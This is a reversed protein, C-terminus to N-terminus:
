SKANSLINKSPHGLRRHLLDYDALYITNFISAKVQVDTVSADLWYVNQSFSILKCTLMPRTKDYLSIHRADGKISLSDNLFQGMSILCTSIKPIYHVPYLRTQVLKNNVKHELLVAGKGKVHIIDLVTRVPMWDAPKATEYEIFDNFDHMFHLSAGSDLLWLTGMKSASKGKCCNCQAFSQGHECDLNNVTLLARLDMAAVRCNGDWLWRRVSPRQLLAPPKTFMPYLFPLAVCEELDEDSGWDLPEDYPSAPSAEEFVWDEQGKASPLVVSMDIDEDENFEEGLTYDGKLWPGEKYQQTIHQELTKVMQITPTVGDEQVKDLAANLAKYPGSTRVKPKEMSVTRKQLGSPGPLAITATTPAELSAVNVIHSVQTTHAHGQQEKKKGKECGGHQCKPRDELKQQSGGSEQNSTV